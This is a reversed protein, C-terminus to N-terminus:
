DKLNESIEKLERQTRPKVQPSVGVTNHQVLRMSVKRRYEAVNISNKVSGKISGSGRM